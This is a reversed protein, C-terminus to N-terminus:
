RKTKAKYNGPEIWTLTKFSKETYEISTMIIACMVYRVKFLSCFDSPRVYFVFNLNQECFPQVSSSDIEDGM